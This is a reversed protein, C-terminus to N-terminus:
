VQNFNTHMHIIFNLDMVMVRLKRVKLLSPPLFKNEMQVFSNGIGKSLLPM